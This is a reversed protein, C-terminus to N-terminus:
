AAAMARSQNKIATPAFFFILHEHFSGYQTRNSFRRAELFERIWFRTLAFHDDVDFGRLQFIDVLHHGATRVVIAM